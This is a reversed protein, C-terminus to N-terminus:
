AGFCQAVDLERGVRVAEYKDWLAEVVRRLGPSTRYGTRAQPGSNYMAYTARVLSAPDGDGQKVLAHDRLYYLLIEAGARANHAIDWRLGQVDYLGRWVHPNVQMIGVSGARSRLPVIKGRARVFQRWCSEQWATAPVLRRYVTATDGALGREGLAQGQARELVGRVRELYPRLNDRAPLWGTPGEGEATAAWASAVLWSGLWGTDSTTDLDGEPAVDSGDVGPPVDPPPLRPDFGFLERLGPDVNESYAVPDDTSTPDAMRALRRLGDASIEVGIDPGLQTLAVLADGAGIFSVYRLATEAPLGAAERRLVPALRAWTKVFLGPVPDPAGPAPVLADLLEHRADLLVDLVAHRLDGAADTAFRKIVFTLFADWQQWHEEWRQLEEPTLAPEEAVVGARPEVTFVFTVEVADDVVRPDRVALSRVLRDVREESGPLVLPLWDRLEDFPQSLDIRTTELRPHVRGKVLDWLLGIGFRKHHALDYVNSDVIALRLTRTAPDLRPEELVDLFGQWRVPALCVRGLTFGLQGEGRSELRLRRGAGQVTPAALDVWACGEGDDWAAKEGPATYVQSVLAQRVFALDLRVPVAVEHAWGSPAVGALAAVVLFRLRVM